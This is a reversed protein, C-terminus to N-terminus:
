QRQARSRLFLSLGLAAAGIGAAWLSVSNAGEAHVSDVDGLGFADLTFDHPPPPVSSAKTSHFHLVKSFPKSLSIEVDLPLPM